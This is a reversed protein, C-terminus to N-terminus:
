FTITILPIGQSDSSIQAEHLFINPDVFYDGKVNFIIQRYSRDYRAARFVRFMRPLSIKVNLKESLM